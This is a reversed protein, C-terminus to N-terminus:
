NILLICYTLNFKNLKAIIQAIDQLKKRQTSVLWKTNPHVTISSSQM